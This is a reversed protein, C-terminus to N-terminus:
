HEADTPCITQLTINHRYFSDTRSRRLASRLAETVEWKWFCESSLSESALLSSANLCGGGSINSSISSNASGGVTKRSADKAQPGKDAQHRACRVLFAKTRTQLNQHSIPVERNYRSICRRRVACTPASRRVKRPLVRSPSIIM